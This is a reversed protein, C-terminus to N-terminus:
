RTQRAHRIIDEPLIELVQAWQDLRNLPTQRNHIVHSVYAKSWKTKEIVNVSKIQLQRMRAQIYRGYNPKSIGTM